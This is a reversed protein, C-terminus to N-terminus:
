FPAGDGEGFPDLMRQEQRRQKLWRKLSVPQALQALERDMRVLAGRLEREEQDVLKDLQLPHLQEFPDRMFQAKVSAEIAEIEAQLAAAQDSLLKNYLRAREASAQALHAADVQEIELQLSFLALLDRADNAENVRKMMATRHARDAEDAARDPHLASALKRYIERLSLAAAQEEQERQRQAATLPKGPRAARRQARREEEAEAQEQMRQRAHQLLDEESEFDIDGLDLGTSAEFVERMSQVAARNGTDYDFEAHEDYQAKFRRRQADDTDDDEILGLLLQCLETCLTRRQGRTWGPQGVLDGIRAALEVRKEHLAKRLPRVRQGQAQALVPRQRQWLGLRERLADIRAVLQNFKRQAPGLPAAPGAQIQLTTQAM